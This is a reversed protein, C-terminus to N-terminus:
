ATKIIFAVMFSLITVVFGYMFVNYAINIYKYKWLLVIGQYYIDRSLSDYLETKNRYTEKMTKKYETLSLTSFDKFFLINFEHDTSQGNKGKKDLFRPRTSIISLIITSVCTIVLLLTPLLLFKNEELKTVLVSLVISIVIANISILLSAKDHAKASLEIHRRETIRFFTEVGRELKIDELLPIVSKEENSVPPVAAGTETTSEELGKLLTKQKTKKKEFLDKAAPTFYSYNSLKRTTEALWEKDTFEKQYVEKLEIRLDEMNERFHKDALHHMRADCLIQAPLTVPHEPERTSFIMEEVTQKIDEDVGKESLFVNAISVSAPQFNAGDKHFGIELFGAALHLVKLEEKKLNMQVGVALCNRVIAATRAYNHFAFAPSYNSEYYQKIFQASEHLLEQSLKM